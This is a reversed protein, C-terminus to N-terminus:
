SIRRRPKLLRQLRELRTGIAWAVTHVAGARDDKLTSLALAMLQLGTAFDLAERLLDEARAKPARRTRM